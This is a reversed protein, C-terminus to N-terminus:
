APPNTAVAVSQSTLPGVLHCDLEFPVGYVDGLPWAWSTVPAGWITLLQSWPPAALRLAKSASAKKVAANHPVAYKITDHVAVPVHGHPHTVLSLLFCPTGREIADKMKLVDRRLSKEDGHLFQRQKTLSTADFGYLAKAELEMVAAGDEAVVALDRRGAWERSVRYRHPALAEHLVYALEDRVPGEVKSTATLYGLRGPTLRTPVAEIAESLTARWGAHLIHPKM